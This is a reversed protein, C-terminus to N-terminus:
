REGPGFRHAFVPTQTRIKSIKAAFDGFDIASISLEIM